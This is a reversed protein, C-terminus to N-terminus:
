GGERWGCMQCWNGSAPHKRGHLGPCHDPGPNEALREWWDGPLPTSNASIQYFDPEYDPYFERIRIVAMHNEPIAVPQAAAELKRNALAISIKEVERWNDSFRPDDVFSRLRHYPVPYILMENEGGACPNRYCNHFYRYLATIWAVVRPHDIPLPKYLKKLRDALDFGGTGPDVVRGLLILQPGRAPSNGHQTYVSRTFYTPYGPPDLYCGNGPDRQLDYTPPKKYLPLRALRDTDITSYDYSPKM